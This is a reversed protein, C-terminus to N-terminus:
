SQIMVEIDELARPLSESLNKNGIETVLVDDEIRVGIDWWKAAINDAPRIYIGPEITTIMGPEFKRYQRNTKYMGADHVDLGLWHATGHMFFQRLDKKTSNKPLLGIQRLRQTIIKTAIKHPVDVTVGPAVSSIAAQQADFVIQYILAQQKNFKGGIPFTRSIDSAYGALECGADILLLDGSKLQQNNKCYHLTCTNSGSAIIPPYAHEGNQQKFVKDFIAELEYEFLGVLGIKAIEKYASVSIDVAKQVLKIENISKILRMEDLSTKLIQYNTPYTHYKRNSSINKVTKTILNDLSFNNGFDYNIHTHGVLLKALQTSMKNLPYVEAGLENEAQEASLREGDWIIQEKTPTDFFLVFRKRSILAVIDPENVGILYLFDSNARFQYNVDNNRVKLTGSAIIVIGGDTLRSLLQKRRLQYDSQKLM